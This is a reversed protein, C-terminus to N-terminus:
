AQSTPQQKLAKWCAPCCFRVEQERFITHWGIPLRLIVTSDDYEIICQTVETCIPLALCKVRGVHQQM